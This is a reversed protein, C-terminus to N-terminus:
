LRTRRGSRVPWRMIEGRDTSRLVTQTFSNISAYRAFFQELVAGLLYPNGGEFAADDLVLTIELGRGFAIPGPVPMRRTVTEVGVHRVGEVQKQVHNDAMDGYLALLGRLSEAGHQPDSDLLSLYNLSLHSVLRWTTQGEPWAPRPKSPGVLCRVSELPLGIGVTFDTEGRGVPMHLPLDRNTCLARVALQHLDARYPAEKADVLSLYVESGIYSSRPGERRQKDSYRRPLRNAMYYASDDAQYAVDHTSYFPAFTQRQESNVGIGDVNTIQYVEFDMPRTRDPLVHHEHDRNSIHIRDCDRPFLNIAPACNLAFHTPALTHELLVEGRSCVLFIEFSEADVRRLARSLAALEVFQFREPLLFYEQLLRYGQFTRPGVPLMAEEDGFGLPRLHSAPLVDHRVAGREGSRVVLAVTSTSLLEHLRASVRDSAPIFLPVVDIKLAKGKIGAPLQFRLRVAARMHPIAPMGLTTISAPTPLYETEVLTLPNLTLEHCTRFECATQEDKGVLSRLGTGRPVKVGEVLSDERLDPHFQVVAGAPTPALYHPLTIELLRQTFRPFEADLRLHVRAALFAFGELLREAYPDACELGELGLRGAVKPFERAFEAGMERMFALESNYYRLLRPDM